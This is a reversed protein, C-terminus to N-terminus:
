RELPKRGNALESGNGLGARRRAKAGAGRAAASSRGPRGRRGAKDGARRAASSYGAPARHAQWTGRAKSERGYFHQLEIEKNRLAIATGPDAAPKTQVERTAEDRADALRRGIRAGFALQFNLRATITPTPRHKGSALYTESARVMQMVLSAY